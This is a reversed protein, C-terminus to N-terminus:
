SVHCFTVHTYLHIMMDDHFNNIIKSFNVNVSDFLSSVHKKKGSVTAFADIVTLFSIELKM